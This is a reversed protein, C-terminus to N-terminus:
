GRGHRASGLIRGAMRSHAHSAKQKLRVAEFRSPRLGMTFMERVFRARLATLTPLKM